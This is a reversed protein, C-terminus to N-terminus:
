PLCVSWLTYFFLYKNVVYVRMFMYLGVYVWMFMCLRVYVWMFMCLGVYVYMYIFVCLGVYVHMFICLCVAEILSAKEHLPQGWVPINQVSTLIELRVFKM